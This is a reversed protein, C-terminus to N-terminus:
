EKLEFLILQAWAETSHKFSPVGGPDGTPSNHLLNEQQRFTPTVRHETDTDTSVLATGQHAHHVWLLADEYLVVNIKQLVAGGAEPDAQVLIVITNTILSNLHLVLFFFFSWGSGGNVSREPKEKKNWTLPQPDVAAGHVVGVPVRFFM